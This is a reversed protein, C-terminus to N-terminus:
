LFPVNSIGLTGGLIGRRNTNSILDAEWNNM